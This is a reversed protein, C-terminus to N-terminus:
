PYSELIDAIRVSVKGDAPGIVKEIMEMRNRQNLAPNEIELLTKELLEKYTFTNTAISRFVNLSTEMRKKIKSRFIRYILRYRVNRNCIVPKDLAAFEFIASSEDTILLDALALYPTLNFDEVGAFYVNPFEAWRRFRKLHHRYAPKSFSFFHPKIILNYQQFDNPFNRPMYEISSPYFTPAYLLTKKNKDLSLRELLGVKEEPLMNVAPDLKAFGVNYLATKIDPYLERLHQERFSGEVFRIDYKNQEPTFNGAKTGIGHVVFSAYDYKVQLNPFSHAGCILHKCSLQVPNKAFDCCAYGERTLYNAAVEILAPADEGTLLFLFSRGRKKLEDAIPLYQPLYYLHKTVFIAFYNVDMAYLISSAAISSRSYNNGCCIYRKKKRPSVKETHIKEM